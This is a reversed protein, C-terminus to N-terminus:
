GKVYLVIPPDYINKLNEPYDKDEFTMIKLGYKKALTFEKDLDEKKLSYIKDAINQGIGSVAMLKGPAAHLIDEPKGFYDLLKKLRISGIDGVLNLSVLAEIYTM